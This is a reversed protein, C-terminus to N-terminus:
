GIVKEIIVVDYTKACGECICKMDGVGELYYGLRGTRAEDQSYNLNADYFTKAGCIDCSYYDCGAM